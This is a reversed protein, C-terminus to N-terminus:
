SSKQYLKKAKKIQSSFYVDGKISLFYPKYKRSSVKLGKNLVSIAKRYRKLKALIRARIIYAQQDVPDKEKVFSLVKLAEKYYRIKYYCWALAKLNQLDGPKIEQAKRFFIAEAYGDLGRYAEALLFNFEFMDKAKEQVALLHKRADKYKQLKLFNSALHLNLEIHKPSLSHAKKFFIISERM